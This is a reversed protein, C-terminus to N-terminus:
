EDKRREALRKVERRLEALERLLQDMKRETENARVPAAVGEDDEIMEQMQRAREARHEFDRRAADRQREQRRRLSRLQEEATLLELRQERLDRATLRTLEKVEVEHRKLSDSKRAAIKEEFEGIEKALAQVQPTDEKAAQRLQRLREKKALLAEQLRELGPEDPRQLAERKRALDEERLKIEEEGQMVRARAEILEKLWQQEQKEYRAETEELLRGLEVHRKAQLERRRRKEELEKAGAPPAERRQAAPKEDAKAGAEDDAAVAAGRAEGARFAVWGAGSGVFATALLVAATMKLKGYFMAQLVGETLSIVAPSVVGVGARGAYSLVARVTTQVLAASLSARSALAAGLATSLAVGRRALSGRLRQRARSLQVAVTGRPCGLLRAAEALTKGELHCLVLPVRYKEPLRGIEEDLLALWERCDSVAEAPAAVEQLLDDGSRWHGQRERARLAVRYAVRYLWGPLSERRAISAAKRVLTLFTAQFADEAAHADRLVRRCVNHVMPGHRWVLLEFAGEDRQRAFRLLLEADTLTVTEQRAAARRLLDMLGNLSRGNM